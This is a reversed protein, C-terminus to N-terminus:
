SRVRIGRLTVSRTTGKESWSVTVTVTKMNAAPSNNTVTWTRTYLQSGDTMGREDILNASGIGEALGNTVDTADPHSGAALANDTTSETYEYTKVKEILDQGLETAISMERSFLGGSISMLQMMAVGLLGIALVTLAILVEILTLGASSNFISSQLNFIKFLKSNPIQFKSNKM